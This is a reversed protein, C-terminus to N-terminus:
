AGRSESSGKETGTAGNGGPGQGYTGSHMWGPMRQTTREFRELTRALDARDAALFQALAQRVAGVFLDLRRNWVAPDEWRFGHLPAEVMSARLAASLELQVGGQEAQNFFYARSRNVGPTESPRAEFGAEQLTVLLLQRLTENTGGVQVTAGVAAIGAISLVVKSRRILNDLRMEQARLPSVRLQENGSARLGCFAYLSHESGAIRDALEGTLPEIGGAHLAVVAVQGGCERVHIDYDVGKDAALVIDTFDRTPVGM